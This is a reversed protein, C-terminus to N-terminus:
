NEREIKETLFYIYCNNTLFKIYEVLLMVM